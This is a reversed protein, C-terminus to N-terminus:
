QHRHNASLRGAAAALTVQPELVELTAEVAVPRLVPQAGRMSVSAATGARAAPQGRALAPRGVRGRRSVCKAQPSKAPSREQALALRGRRVASISIRFASSAARRPQPSVHRSSSCGSCSAPLLGTIGCTRLTILEQAVRWSKHVTPMKECIARDSAAVRGAMLGPHARVGVEALSACRRSVSRRSCPGMMNHRVRPLSEDRRGPSLLFRM